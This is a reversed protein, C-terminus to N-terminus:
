LVSLIEEVKARYADDTILGKDHLDKLARLRREMDAEPSLQPAPVAPAPAAATNAAGAPAPAEGPSAPQSASGASSLTGMKDRAVVLWDDRAVGSGAHQFEVGTPAVIKWEHSESEARSSPRLDSFDEDWQGYVNRKKYAGHVEGLILNVMGGQVFVRGSNVKTSKLLKGSLARRGATRFTVDQEPRAQALGRALWESLVAIEDQAFVPGVDGDDDVTVAALFSALSPAPLQAPHENPPAGAEDRPELRVWQEKEGQWLVISDNPPDQAAQAELSAGLLVMALLSHIFVGAGASCANRRQM